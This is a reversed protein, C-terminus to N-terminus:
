MKLDDEEIEFLSRKSKKCPTLNDGTLSGRPPTDELPSQMALGLRKYM